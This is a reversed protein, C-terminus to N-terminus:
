GSANADFSWERETIDQDVRELIAYPKLLPHIIALNRVPFLIFGNLKLVAKKMDRLINKTM